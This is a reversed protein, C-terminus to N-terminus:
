YISFSNISYFFLGERLPSNQKTSLNNQKKRLNLGTEGYKLHHLRGSAITRVNQIILMM